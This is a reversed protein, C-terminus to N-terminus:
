AVVVTRFMGAEMHLASPLSLGMSRTYGRKGSLEPARAPKVIITHKYPNFGRHGNEFESWLGHLHIPHEMMTDNILVIRVREGLKFQMPEAESFKQGNFGWIFREM